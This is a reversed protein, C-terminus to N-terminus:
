ETQAGRFAWFGAWDSAGFTPAENGLKGNQSPFWHSFPKPAESIRLGLKQPKPKITPTIRQFGIPFYTKPSRFIPNYSLCIRGVYPAVPAPPGAAKLSVKRDWFGVGPSEPDLKIDYYTTEM